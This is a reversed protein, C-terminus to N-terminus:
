PRKPMPTARPAAKVAKSKKDVRLLTLMDAGIFKEVFSRHLMFWVALATVPPMILTSFQYLYAIVELQWPAWGTQEVVGPGSSLLIQKMGVAFVALMQLPLLILWGYWLNRWRKPSWAALTLAAMLATGYSYLRADIEASIIADPRFAQGPASGPALNTVFEFGHLTQQISTVFEPVGLLAMGSLFWRIPWHLLPVLVYWAMFVPPVWLLIRVFFRGITTPV